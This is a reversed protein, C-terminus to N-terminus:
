RTGSAGGDAPIIGPNFDPDMPIPEWLLAPDHEVQTIRQDAIVVAQDVLLPDKPDWSDFMTVGVHGTTFSTDLSGGFYIGNIWFDVYPYNVVVRLTNWDYPKIASVTLYGPSLWSQVGNVYKFVGLAQNNGYCFYIGNDWHKDSGLPNPYGLVIACSARDIISKRKMTVTYEIQKFVERQLASDWLNAAYGQTKLSGKSLTWTGYIDLWKARDTDFTSTFGKSTVVFTASSSWSQWSGGVKSRVAWVYLGGTTPLNNLTNLKTPPQLYCYFTDCTGAGKVTYTAGTVFDFVEVWYKTALADRYFYLKPLRSYVMEGVPSFPMAAGDVSVEPPAPFGEDYRPTYESLDPLKGDWVPPDEQAQVPSAIMGLILLAMVVFLVMRSRNM